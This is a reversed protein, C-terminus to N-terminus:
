TPLRESSYIQLSFHHGPRQNKKHFTGMIIGLRREACPIDVTQQLRFSQHFNRGCTLKHYGNPTTPARKYWSTSRPRQCHTPETCCCTQCEEGAVQSTAARGTTQTSCAMKVDHLLVSIRTQELSPRCLYSAATLKAGYIISLYRLELHTTNDERRSGAKKLEVEVLKFNSFSKAYHGQM